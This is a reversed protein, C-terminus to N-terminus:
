FAGTIGVSGLGVYPQVFASDSKASASDSSSKKSLGIIALVVGGAAVAFSITSITAFTKTDELLGAKERPCISNLCQAKVDSAKGFALAGTIGGAILGVGATVFGIYVLPSTHSSSPPQDVIPKGLSGPSSSPPLPSPDPPPTGDPRPPEPPKTGPPTGSMTVSLSLTVDRAEAEKLDIEARSEPNGTVKAVIVHHGPNVSRPETLAASPLEEGDVTVKASTGAPVGALIVRVTPIRTKLEGALKDCEVRADASKKTEDSAVPIRAVSLFAERAEVLEGLLTHTKGLELGTIPTQGLAHAAKLKERAGTLDGKDRLEKGQKFLQRATEMDAASPAAHALSGFSLVTLVPPAAIAVALACAVARFSNSTTTM